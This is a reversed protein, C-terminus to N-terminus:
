AGQTEAGKSVTPTRQDGLSEICSLCHLTEVGIVSLLHYFFFGLFFVGRVGTGSQVHFLSCKTSSLSFDAWWGLCILIVSGTWSEWKVSPSVSVRTTVPVGGSQVAAWALGNGGRTPLSSVWGEWM